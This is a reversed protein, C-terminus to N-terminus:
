LASCLPHERLLYENCDPIAHGKAPRNVVTRHGSMWKQWNEPTCGSPNEVCSKLVQWKLLFPKASRYTSWYHRQLRSMNDPRQGLHRTSEYYAYLGEPLHAPSITFCSEGYWSQKECTILHSKITEIFAPEYGDGCGNMRASYGNPGLVAGTKGWSTCIPKGSSSSYNPDYGTCINHQACHIAGAPDKMRRIVVAKSLAMTHTTVLDIHRFLQSRASTVAADGLEHSSIWLLRSTDVVREAVVLYKAFAKLLLDVDSEESVAQIKSLHGIAKRTLRIVDRSNEELDFNGSRMTASADDLQALLSETEGEVVVTFTQLNNAHKIEEQVIGKIKDYDISAGEPPFLVAFMEGGGPIKGLLEQGAASALSTAVKAAMSKAKDKGWDKVKANWESKQETQQAESPAPASIIFACACVLMASLTVVSRM